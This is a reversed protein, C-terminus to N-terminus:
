LCAAGDYGESIGYKGAQLYFNYAEEESQSLRALGLYAEAYGHTLCDKLKVTISTVDEPRAWCMENLIRVDHQGNLLCRNANGYNYKSMFLVYLPFWPLNEISFDINSMMDSLKNELQLRINSLDNPLPLLSCNHPNDENSDNDSADNEGDYYYDHVYFDFCRLLYHIALLNNQKAAYALKIVVYRRSLVSTTQDYQCLEQPFFIHSLIREKVTQHPWVDYFCQQRFKYELDNYIELDLKDYVNFLEAIRNEERLQTLTEVDVM